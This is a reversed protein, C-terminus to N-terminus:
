RPLLRAGCRTQARCGRPPQGLVSARCAWAVVGQDPLAVGALTAALRGQVSSMARTRYRSPYTPTATGNSSVDARRQGAMVLRGGHRKQGVRGGALLLVLHVVGIDRLVTVYPVAGFQPRM